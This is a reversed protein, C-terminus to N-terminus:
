RIFGELDGHQPAAWAQEYELYVAVTALRAAPLVALLAQEIQASAIAHFRVIQEAGISAQCDVPAALAADQFRCALQASAAFRLPCGVTQFGKFPTELFPTAPTRLAAVLDNPTAVFAPQDPARGACPM